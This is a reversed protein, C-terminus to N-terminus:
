ECKNSKRFILWYCHHRRTHHATKWRPSIIPGKRIKIICDCPCFGVEAAAAIFDIHAWQFRHGHVYDTIKCFLIGEPKLIRYAQQAFPPYLHSFNYNNKASSKLVLGFRTNFDKSKDKGQNPIHPPDFVIVDFHEDPFPMHLNDTVINPRHKAEIDIGIVPRQSGRWFRGTNVTADLILRPRERPYFDLMKELLEADAGEWVSSLPQYGTELQEPQNDLTSDTQQPILELQKTELPNM